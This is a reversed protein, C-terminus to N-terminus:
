IFRVSSIRLMDDDPWLPLPVLEPFLFEFLSQHTQDPAYDEPNKKMNQMYAKVRKAWNGSKDQQKLLTARGYVQLARRFWLLYRQYSGALYHAVEIFQKRNLGVPRGHKASYFADLMAVPVRMEKGYHRLPTTTLMEGDGWHDPVNQPFKALEDEQDYLSSHQEAIQLFWNEFEQPWNAREAAGDREQQARAAAYDFFYAQQRELDLTLDQFSAQGRRLHPETQGSAPESWICDLLFDGAAVSADRTAQSVVFANQNNNYFVDDVTLRRADADFRAFVWFLLGGEKLYFLRREAIVDLFTTSLQVEFAIRLDHFKAEVDPQRWQGTMVGAWRREAHIEHFRGCARLSDVLWEKMQRHLQSEKAGNYKRANIEEHSLEGRTVASCRGDEKSHRFFFRKEEKRRCIYVPTFCEACLYMPQGESLATKVAMRLRMLREYDSGLVRVVPLEIGSSSELVTDISPRIVTLSQSPSTTM